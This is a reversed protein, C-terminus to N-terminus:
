RQLAQGTQCVEAGEDVALVELLHFVPSVSLLLPLNAQLASVRIHVLAAMLALYRAARMRRWRNEEESVNGNRGKTTM